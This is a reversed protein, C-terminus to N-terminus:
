TSGEAHCIEKFWRRYSFGVRVRRYLPADEVSFRWSRQPRVGMGGSCLLSRETELEDLTQSEWNCKSCQKTLEKKGGNQQLKRRSLQLPSFNDEWNVMKHIDGKYDLPCLLKDQAPTPCQKTGKVTVKSTVLWHRAWSHVSAQAEVDCSM